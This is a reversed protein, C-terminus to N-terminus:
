NYSLAKQLLIFFYDSDNRAHNGLLTILIGRGGKQPIGRCVLQQGAM